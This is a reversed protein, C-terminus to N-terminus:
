RTFVVTYLCERDGLKVHLVRGQLSISVHTGTPRFALLGSSPTTSNGLSFSAAERRVDSATRQVGFSRGESRLTYTSGVDTCLPAPSAVPAPRPTGSATPRPPPPVSMVCDTTLDSSSTLIADAYTQQAPASVVFVASMIALVFTRM